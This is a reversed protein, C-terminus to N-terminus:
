IKVTILDTQEDPSLCINPSRCQFFRLRDPMFFLICNFPLGSKHLQYTKNVLSGYSTCLFKKLSLEAHKTIYRSMETYSLLLNLVQVERLM